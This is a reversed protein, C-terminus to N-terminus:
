NLKVPLHEKQRFPLCFLRFFVGKNENLHKNRM